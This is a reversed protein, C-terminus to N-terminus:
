SIPSEDQEQFHWEIHKKPADLYFIMKRRSSYWHRNPVSSYKVQYELTGSVLKTTDVGQIPPYLYDATKKPHVYGGTTMFKPNDVTKDELIVKFNVVEFQILEESTNELRIAINVLPTGKPPKAIGWVLGVFALKFRISDLAADYQQQTHRAVQIAEDRQRYPARFLNWGYILGYAVALGLVLGIATGVGTYVGQRLTTAHEPTLWAGVTGGVAGFVAAGVVEVAWFSKATQRFSETDKWARRWTSESM